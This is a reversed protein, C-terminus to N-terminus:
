RSLAQRQAIGAVATFTTALARLAESGIRLSAAAAVHRAFAAGYVVDYLMWCFGSVTLLAWPWILAGGRLALATQLLPVVLAFCVADGLEPALEPLRRLDGAFLGRLQEVVPWGELILAVALGAAFLAVQKRRAGEDQLGAVRWARALTWTGLVAAANAVVMLVARLPALHAGGPGQALAPLLTADRTLLLLQCGALGMWALRLYDGREFALAAALCGLLCLAKGSENETRMLAVTLGEPSVVQAVLFVGAFLVPLVALARTKL